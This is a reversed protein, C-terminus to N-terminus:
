FLIAAFCYSNQARTRATHAATRVAIMGREQSHLSHQRERALSRYELEAVLDTDDQWKAQLDVTEWSIQTTHLSFASHLSM